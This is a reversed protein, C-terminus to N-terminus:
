KEHIGHGGVFRCDGSSDCSANGGGGGVSFGGGEDSPAVRGGGGSISV